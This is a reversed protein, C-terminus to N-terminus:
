LIVSSNTASNVCTPTGDNFISLNRNELLKKVIKGRLNVCNNGWTFNKANLDGMLMIPGSIQNLANHIDEETIKEDPAIYISVVTHDVPFHVKVAVIELKSTIKVEKQAMDNRILIAVGGRSITHNELVGIKEYVNYKGIKIEDHYKHKTENLSIIVPKQEDILELLQQRKKNYSNMNWHLAYQIKETESSM